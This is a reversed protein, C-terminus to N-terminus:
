PKEGDIQSNLPISQITNPNGEYARRAEESRRQRYQEIMDRCLQRATSMSSVGPSEGAIDPWKLGNVGCALNPFDRGQFRDTFFAFLEGGRTALVSATLDDDLLPIAWIIVDGAEKITASAAVPDFPRYRAGKRQVERILAVSVNGNSAKSEVFYDAASKKWEDLMALQDTPPPKCDAGSMFM